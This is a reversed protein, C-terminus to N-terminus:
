IAVSSLERAGQELQAHLRLRSTARSLVKRSPLKWSSTALVWVSFASWLTLCVAQSVQWLMLLPPFRMSHAVHFLDTPLCEQHLHSGVNNSNESVSHHRSIEAAQVALDSSTSFVCTFLSWLSVTQPLCAAIVVARMHNKAIRTNSISLILSSCILVAVGASVGVAECLSTSSICFERNDGVSTESAAPPVSFLAIVYIRHAAVASVASLISFLVSPVSLQIATKRTLLHCQAPSKSPISASEAVDVVKANFDLVNSAQRSISSKVVFILSLCVVVPVFSVLLVGVLSGESQSAQPMLGAVIAGASSTANDIRKYLLMNIQIRGGAEPASHPSSIFQPEFAQLLVAFNVDLSRPVRILLRSESFGDPATPSNNRFISVSELLTAAQVSPQSPDQTLAVLSAVFDRTSNGISPSSRRLVIELFSIEEIAAGRFVWACRTRPSRMSDIDGRGGSAGTFRNLASVWSSSLAVEPSESMNPTLQFRNSSLLEVSGLCLREQSDFDSLSLDSSFVFVPDGSGSGSTWGSLTCCSGFSLWLAAWFAAAHKMQSGKRIHCNAKVFSQHATLQVRTKLLELM